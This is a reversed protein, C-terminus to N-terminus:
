GLPLRIRVVTGRGQESAISVRGGHAEVVRRVFSLGLGSGTPKTTFFEDFARERTRADMGAGTDEVSVVVGPPESAPSRATRLTVSGSEPIAECANRILNQFANALLGSDASCDPLGEALEAHLSVRQGAAFGQLAMVERVLDNIQVKARLPEVRALRQYADIAGELREVQELMLDVFQARRTGIEERALDEKLFQAAGKLAALPNKFDHAMQAAFRGLTALQMTHARRAAATRALHRIVAVLALTVLAIGLALLATNSAALWFLAVYALVSVAAIAVSIAASEMTLETELLRERTVAFMIISGAALFGLAGLSPLERVFNGLLDTLGLATGLVTAAVLLRTRAREHPESIQRAHRVLLALAFSMAPVACIALAAAWSGDQDWRRAAPVFLGLTPVLSLLAFPVWWFARSRGFRRQQGVFALVFELALPATLPSATHDLWPWVPQGSLDSLLSALNWAFVDFFLLALPLALSSKPSRRLAVIALALQGACGASSIILQVWGVPPM